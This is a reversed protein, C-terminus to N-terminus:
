DATPRVATKSPAASANEATDQGALAIGNIFGSDVSPLFGKPMGIFLWISAGLLGFACAGAAAFVLPILRLMPRLPRLWGSSTSPAIFTSATIVNSVSAGEIMRKIVQKVRMTM